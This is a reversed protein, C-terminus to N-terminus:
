GHRVGSDSGDSRCPEGTLGAQAAGGNGQALHETLHVLPLRTCGLVKGPYDAAAAIM